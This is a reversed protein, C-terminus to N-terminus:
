CGGTILFMDFVYFPFFGFFCLISACITTKNHKRSNKKAELGAIAPNLAIRHDRHIRSHITYLFLTFGIFSLFVTGSKIITLTGDPVALFGMSMGGENFPKALENLADFMVCFIDKLYAMVSISWGYNCKVVFVFLLAISIYAGFEILPRSKIGDGHIVRYDQLKKYYRVSSVSLLTTEFIILVPFWQLIEFFPNTAM